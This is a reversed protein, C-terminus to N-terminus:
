LLVRRNAACRVVGHLDLDGFWHTAMEQQLRVEGPLLGHQAVAVDVIEALIWLEVRHLVGIGGNCTVDESDDLKRAQKRARGPLPKKKATPLEVADEARLVAVKDGRWAVNINNTVRTLWIGGVGAVDISTIFIYVAM